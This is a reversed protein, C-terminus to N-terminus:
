EFIVPKQQTKFVSIGKKPEISNSESREETQAFNKSIPVQKKQVKSSERLSSNTEQQKISNTLSEKTFKFKLPSQLELKQPSFSGHAKEISDSLSGQYIIPNGIPDLLPKGTKNVMLYVEKQTKSQKDYMLFKKILQSEPYRVSQFKSESVGINQNSQTQLQQEKSQEFIPSSSQFVIQSKKEQSVPPSPSYSEVRKYIVQTSPYKEPQQYNNNDRYFNQTTNQSYKPEPHLNNSYSNEPVSAITSNQIYVPPHANNSVANSVQQGFSSSNQVLQHNSSRINSSSNQSLPMKPFQQLGQADIQIYQSNPKVISSQLNTKNEVKEDFNFFSDPKQNNQHSVASNQEVNSTHKQAFSEFKKSYRENELESIKKQSTTQKGIKEFDTREENKEKTNKNESLTQEDTLSKEGFFETKTKTNSSTQFSKENTLQEMKKKLRSEIDTYDYAKMYVSDANVKIAKELKKSQIESELDSKLKLNEAKLLGYRTKYFLLEDKTELLLKETKQLDDQLRSVIGSGHKELISRNSQNQNEGFESVDRLKETIEKKKTLEIQEALNIRDVNLSSLIKTVRKIEEEHMRAAFIDKEFLAKSLKPILTEMEQLNQLYHKNEAETMEETKNLSRKEINRNSNEIIKQSNEKYKRNLESIKAEKESFRNQQSNLPENGSFHKDFNINSNKKRENAEVLEKKSEKQEKSFRLNNRIEQVLQYDTNRAIQQMEESPSRTRKEHKKHFHQSSIQNPPTDEIQLHREKREAKLQESKKRYELIELEKEKLREQLEIFEPYLCSDPLSILDDEEESDHDEENKLQMEKLELKLRQIESAIKLWKENKLIKKKSHHIQTYNKEDESNEIDSVRHNIHSRTKQVTGVHNYQNSKNKM